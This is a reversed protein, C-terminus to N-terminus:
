SESKLEVQSSRERYRLPKYRDRFSLKAFIDTRSVTPRTPYTFLVIEAVIAVTQRMWLSRATQRGERSGAQSGHSTRFGGRIGFQSATRTITM